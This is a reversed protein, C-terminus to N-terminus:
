PFAVVTKIAQHRPKALNTEIMRGYDELAFRHTVLGSLKIKGAAILELALQFAHIREGNRNLYGYSFAGKVTQLKLWTPTLDLKVDHGIGVISLTGGVALCRLATNLTPSSAVVDFIKHYGGMLIDPGILPKYRTAGTIQVTRGFLDGDTIVQDAEAQLVTEAHFASPEAVTIRCDIELARIAQVILGGIVGGGIVLVDEGPAPRNDLVAQLAVATPETMAGAEPPLGPPLHFLQSQHAVFYPAFGGGTDRCIGIFMGPALRGQAFNQCNGPRDARCAPCEPFIERATCNLHPAVTVVEGPEFEQVASGVEVIEGCIEHGLVCPFSTFPSATPSDKLFILNLDSACFGCMLTKVKVWQPSPLEPEPREALKITALPGQYFLRRNFPGLAKLALWQPVTVSFQLAKM